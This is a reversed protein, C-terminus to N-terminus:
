KEDMFLTKEYENLQDQFSANPCVCPRRKSTYQYAIDYKWKNKWMLYAICITSSRSVGMQCHVFCRNGDKTIADDIFKNSQEFFKDISVSHADDIKIKLYTIKIDKNDEFYNPVFETVNIIHTINLDQMMQWNKAHNADGLFLKDDIIENAYDDPIAKFKDADNDDKTSNCLFPYKSRFESLTGSMVNFSSINAANKLIASLKDIVQNITNLDDENCKKEEDDKDNKNDDSQKNPLATDHYIIIKKSELQSDKMSVSTKLDQFKISENDANNDFLVSCDIHYSTVIHSEDYEQKSRIDFLIYKAAMFAFSQQLFNYMETITM